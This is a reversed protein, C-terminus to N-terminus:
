QATFAELDSFSATGGHGGVITAGKLRLSALADRLQVAWEVPLGSPFGPSFLDSEFVINQKPLTIIVMDYAHSNPIARITVPREPDALTVPHDARVGRYEVEEPDRAFGDPDLTSPAAFVERYLPESAAHAVVTAGHGAVARIGGSHDDHFHTAVVYSIPKTPFQARAWAEIARSREGYLPAEVLVIGDEQEVALSNHSGGGLRFVGPALEIPDVFAQVADLRLGIAAFSQHFVHHLNGFRAGDPDATPAATSPFEFLSADLAVGARAVERHESLLLADGLYYDIQTPFLGQKWPGSYRVEISLDRRLPDSTLTTVKSIRGTRVDIWLTLPAVDDAVELLAHRRGALKATGAYSVRSPDRLAERVLLLPNMLREDRRLAATGAALLDQAPSGFLGDIGSATGLDGRVIESFTNPTNVLFEIDRETDVRFQDGGVDYSLTRRYRSAVPTAGGPEYEEGPFYRTGEATTQFTAMGAVASKGGMADVMKALVDEDTTPDDTEAACGLLSVTLLLPSILKNMM